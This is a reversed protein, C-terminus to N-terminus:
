QQTMGLFRSSGHWNAPANAHGRTSSNAKRTKPNLKRKQLYIGATDEWRSLRGINFANLFDALTWTCKSYRCTSLACKSYKRGSFKELKSIKSLSLILPIQSSRSPCDWLVKGKTAKPISTGFIVNDNLRWQTCNGGSSQLKNDWKLLLAHM